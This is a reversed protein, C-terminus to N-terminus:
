VIPRLKASSGANKRATASATRKPRSSTGEVSQLWSEVTSYSHRLEKLKAKIEWAKGTLVVGRQHLYINM